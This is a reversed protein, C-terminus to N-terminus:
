SCPIGKTQRALCGVATPAQRSRTSGAQPSGTSRAQRSSTSRAQRSSTSGTPEPSQNPRKRQYEKLIPFGLFLKPLKIRPQGRRITVVISNYPGMCPGFGCHTKEVAPHKGWEALFAAEIAKFVDWEEYPNLDQCRNERETESLSEWVQFTMKM